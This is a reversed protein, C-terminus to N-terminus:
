FDPLAKDLFSQRAEADNIFSLDSAKEGSYESEILKVFEQDVNSVALMSHVFYNFGSVKVTNYVGISLDAFVHMGRQLDTSAVEKRNRPITASFPSSKGTVVEVMFKSHKPIIMNLVMKTSDGSFDTLGYGVKEKNSFLPSIKQQLATCISEIEKKDVVIAMKNKMNARETSPAYVIYGELRVHPLSPSIRSNTYVQGDEAKSEKDKLEISSAMQLASCFDTSSLTCPKRQTQTGPLPSQSIQSAMTNYIKRSHNNIYVPRPSARARSSSFQPIFHKYLRM